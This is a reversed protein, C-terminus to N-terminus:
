LEGLDYFPISVGKLNPLDEAEMEIYERISDNDLLYRSCFECKGLNMFVYAEEGDATVGKAISSMTLTVEHECRPCIEIRATAM